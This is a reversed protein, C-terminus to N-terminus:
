YGKNLSCLGIRKFPGNEMLLLMLRTRGQKFFHYKSSGRQFLIAKNDSAEILYYHGTQSRCHCSVVHYEEHNDVDTTIM